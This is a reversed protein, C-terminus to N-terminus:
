VWISMKAFYSKKEVLLSFKPNNQLFIYASMDKETEFYINSHFLKQFLAERHWPKLEAFSFHLLIIKPALINKKM